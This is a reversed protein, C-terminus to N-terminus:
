RVLQVLGERSDPLKHHKLMNPWHRAHWPQEDETLAHIVEKQQNTLPYHANRAPLPFAFRVLAEALMHARQMQYPERSQRGQRYQRLLVPLARLRMEPSTQELAQIIDAYFLGFTEDPVSEYLQRLQPSEGDLYGLLQDVIDAQTDREYFCPLRLLAVYRVLESPHDTRLAQLWNVASELDNLCCLEQLFAAQIRQDKEHQFAAELPTQTDLRREPFSELLAGALRRMEPDPSELMGVFYSIGIGIQSWSAQAEQLQEEDIDEEPAPHISITGPMYVEAQAIALLLALISPRDPIATTTALQVLFATTLRTARSIKGHYELGKLYQIARARLGSDPSTLACLALPVEEASTHGDPLTLSAWDIERLADMNLYPQAQDFLVSREPWATQNEV